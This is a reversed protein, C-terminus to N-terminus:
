LGVVGENQKDMDKIQEELSKSSRTHPYTICWLRMRDEFYRRTAINSIMPILDEPFGRETLVSNAKSRDTNTFAGIIVGYLEVLENEYDSLSNSDDINGTNNINRINREYIAEKKQIIWKDLKDLATDLQTDDINSM